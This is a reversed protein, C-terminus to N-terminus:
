KEVECYKHIDQRWDIIRDFLWGYECERNNFTRPDSEITCEMSRDLKELLEFAEIAKNLTTNIWEAKNKDQNNYEKKLLEIAEEINVKINIDVMYNRRYLSVM